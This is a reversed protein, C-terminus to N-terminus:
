RRLALTLGDGVPVLSLYIRDDHLLRANLVRMAQTDADKISPDAVRGRRLVNDIAILGGPRVLVLAREYYADYRTKDADIFAFDYTGAEGAGILADMTEAANGLRLDIKGAVGADRWYRQAIATYTENIECAVVKGDAPLTQAVVLASYGTFAGIDITKRAHLMRVLLAMMQGQEPAIQMDAEPLRATEERLRKLINSERLSTALLYGHLEDSLNLSKRSM